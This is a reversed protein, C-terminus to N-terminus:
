CFLIFESKKLEKDKESQLREIIDSGSDDDDDNEVDSAKEARCYL